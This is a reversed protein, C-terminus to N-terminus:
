VSKFYFGSRRFRYIARLIELYLVRQGNEYVVKNEYQAPDLEILWDVLLGRVKMIVRDGHPDIPLLVQIFANPVDMTMVDRPKHGDIASTLLISETHATPSSKDERSIWERTKKGNYALRGKM